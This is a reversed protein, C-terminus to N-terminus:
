MVEDYSGDYTAHLKRYDWSPYRQKLQAILSDAIEEQQTLAMM